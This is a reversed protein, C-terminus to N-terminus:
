SELAADTGDDGSSTTEFTGIAARAPGPWPIEGMGDTGLISIMIPVTLHILSDYNPDSWFVPVSLVIALYWLTTVGIENVDAERLFRTLELKRHSPRFVPRPHVLTNRCDLRAEFKTGGRMPDNAGAIEALLQPARLVKERLPPRSRIFDLDAQGMRVAARVKAVKDEHIALALDTCLNALGELVSAACVLIASRLAQITPAPDDFDDSVDVTLSTMETIGEDSALRMLNGLQVVLGVVDALYGKGTSSIRFTHQNNKNAM